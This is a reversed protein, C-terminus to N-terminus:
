LLAKDEVRRSKTMDTGKHGAHMIIKICNTVVGTTAQDTLSYFGIKSHFGGSTFELSRM